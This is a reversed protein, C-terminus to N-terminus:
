IRPQSTRRASKAQAAGIMATYRNASQEEMLPGVSALLRSLEPTFRRQVDSVNLNLSMRTYVAHDQPSMKFGVDRLFMLSDKAGSREELCDQVLVKMVSQEVLPSPRRGAAFLTELVARSKPKDVLLDVLAAKVVLSGVQENMRMGHQALFEFNDRSRPLHNLLNGAAFRAIDHGFKETPRVGANWLRQFDKLGGPVRVGHVHDSVASHLAVQEPTPNSSAPAAPATPATPVTPTAPVM